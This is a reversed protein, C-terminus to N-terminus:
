RGARDFYTHLFDLVVKKYLEPDTRYAAGHSAGPVIVLSKEETKADAFLERAIEVPMRVDNAGNIFLVPRHVIKGAARRLDFDENRFGVKERVFFGLANAVPFPPLGFFLKLHHDITHEFSLFSSDVILGDIEPTEAAALLTAAAGMSVGMVVIPTQVQLSDRAFKVASEVDLRELYGLSSIEGTSKGHRRFDFLLGAYGARWFDVARELMEQRSRFLGHAYIILVRASDKPLYWGSIQVPPVAADANNNIKRAPALFTIDRYPVQFSDPSTTIRLDMPRTHAHTLLYSFGYPAIVGVFLVVLVLLTMLIRRMWRWVRSGRTSSGNNKM